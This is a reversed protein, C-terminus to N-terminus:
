NKPKLIMFGLRGMHVNQSIICGDLINEFCEGMPLITDIPYEKSSIVIYLCEDPSERKIILLENHDIWSFNGSNALVPHQKRTEIFLKVIFLLDQVGESDDEWNTSRRNDPDGGGEMFRETGYYLSPTGYFTLLLLLAAKVKDRDNNCITRLRPTDHSDLLPMCSKLQKLTYSHIIEDIASRYQYIDHRDDCIFALVARALAYNTVGDLGEDSIWESANHWIEGVIYSEKKCDRVVHKIEALMNDSIENAVDLRWADVGLNMWKKVVTNAFFTITQFAETEFKPMSKIMGFCEYELNGEKDMSTKFMKYYKSNKKSKLVDQFMSNEDSCHTFSIDLMVRMGLNHAACCLEKFDEASGLEPDVETYDIVDYKHYSTAKYIPNIYLGNIGIDKLYSLKDIIGRINNNFRIPLIQYWIIDNIWTPPTFINSKSIYPIFFMALDNHDYEQTFGSESYQLCSNDDYILFYYKLRHLECPIIASFYFNTYTNGTKQMEIVNYPWFLGADTTLRIYPDNYVVEVKRIDKGTKLRIMVHKDDLLDCDQKRYRGNIHIIENTNM